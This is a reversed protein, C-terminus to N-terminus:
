FVDREYKRVCGKEVLTEMGFRVDEITLTSSVELTRYASVPLYTAIKEFDVDGTGPALHDIIGRVDHLHVGIIRKSYRRLWDEHDFFDLQWLAQAHGVDYQFGYWENDTLSLLLGLEDLTPIDYFHYRNEIAVCIGSGRCYAVIEELSRMVSMLHPKVRITRDSRMKSILAKYKSTDKLGQEYFARLDLEMSRDGTIGGAHVIVSRADLKVALDITRLTIDVGKHRCDENLSSIVWDKAKLEDKSIVAPCPDHISGIKYYKLDIEALMDPTVAHNLEIRHFGLELGLRLIETFPLGKNVGWMTSLAADYLYIPQTQTVKKIGLKKRNQDIESLM